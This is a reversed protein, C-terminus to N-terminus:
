WFFPPHERRLDGCQMRWLLLLERLLEQMGWLISMAFWSLMLLKRLMWLMCLVGRTNSLLRNWLVAISQGVEGITKNESDVQMHPKGKAALERRLPLLIFVQLKLMNSEAKRYGNKGRYQVIQMKQIWFCGLHNSHQLYGQMAWFAANWSM